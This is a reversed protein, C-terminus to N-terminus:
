MIWTHTCSARKQLTEGAEWIMPPCWVCLGCVRHVGGGTDPGLVPCHVAFIPPPVLASQVPILRWSFGRLTM